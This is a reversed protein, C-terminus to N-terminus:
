IQRTREQSLRGRFGPMKDLLTDVVNCDLLEGIHFCLDAEYQSQTLAIGGFPGILLQDGHRSKSGCKRFVQCVEIVEDHLERSSPLVGMLLLLLEVSDHLTSNCLMCRYLFVVVLEVLRESEGSKSAGVHSDEVRIGSAQLGSNTVGRDGHDIGVGIDKEM